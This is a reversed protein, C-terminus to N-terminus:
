YYAMFGMYKTLISKIREPKHYDNLRTKPLAELGSFAKVNDLNSSIFFGDRDFIIFDDNIFRLCFDYYPDGDDPDSIYLAGYPDACCLMNLNIDVATIQTINTKISKIQKNNNRIVINSQSDGTEATIGNQNRKTFDRHLDHLVAESLKNIGNGDIISEIVCEFTNWIIIKNNSNLVAIHNRNNSIRIDKIYPLIRFNNNILEVKHKNYIIYGTHTKSNTIEYSYENQTIYKKTNNITDNKTITEMNFDIVIESNNEYLIHLATNYENFFMNSVPSTETFPLYYIGAIIQKKNDYIIIESNSKSATYHHNKSIGASDINNHHNIQPVIRIHNQNNIDRDKNCQLCMICFFALIIIPYNRM